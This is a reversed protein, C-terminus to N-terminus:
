GVAIKRIEHTRIHVDVALLQHRDVGQILAPRIDLAAQVEVYTRSRGEGNSSLGYRLSHHQKFVGDSGIGQFVRSKAKGKPKPM